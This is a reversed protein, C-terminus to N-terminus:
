GLSSRDARGLRNRTTKSPRRSAFRADGIGERNTRRITRWDRNSAGPLGGSCSRAVAATGNVMVRHLPTVAVTAAQKQPAIRHSDRRASEKVIQGVSLGGTGIQPARSAPRALVPSPPLGNVMLRHVPTVAVTAAQKRPAIRPSDRRASEKMTRGVFPGALGQILRRSVARGSSQTIMKGTTLVLRFIRSAKKAFRLGHSRTASEYKTQKEGSGIRARHSAAPNARCDQFPAILASKTCAPASPSRM